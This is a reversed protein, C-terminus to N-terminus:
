IDKILTATWGSGNSAAVSFTSSGSNYWTYVGATNNEGCVHTVWAAVGLGHSFTGSGSGSVFTIASWSGTGPFNFSAALGTTTDANFVVGSLQSGSTNTVELTLARGSGSPGAPALGLASNTTDDQWGLTAGSTSTAWTGGSAIANTANSGGGATIAGSNTVSSSATITTAQLTDSSTFSGALTFTQDCRWGNSTAYFLSTTSGGGNGGRIAGYGSHSFDVGLGIRPSGDGSVQGSFVPQFASGSGPTIAQLPPHSATGQTTTQITSSVGNFLDLFQNLDAVSAYNGNVAKTLSM